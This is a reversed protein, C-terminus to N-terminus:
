LMLLWGRSMVHLNCMKKKFCVKGSSFSLQFLLSHLLSFHQIQNLMLVNRIGRNQSCAHNFMYAMILCYVIFNILLAVIIHVPSKLKHLDLKYVYVIM